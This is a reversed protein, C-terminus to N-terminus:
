SNEAQIEDLMISTAELRNLIEEPTRHMNAWLAWLDIGYERADALEPSNEIFDVIEQSEQETYM